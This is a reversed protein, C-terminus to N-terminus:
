HGAVSYSRRPISVGSSRWHLPIDKIGSTLHRRRTRFWSNGRCKPLILTTQAILYFGLANADSSSFTLIKKDPTLVGISKKKECIVV